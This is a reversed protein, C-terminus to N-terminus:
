HASTTQIEGKMHVGEYVLTTLLGGQSIKLMGSFVTDLNSATLRHRFKLNQSNVEILNLPFSRNFFFIESSNLLFSRLYQVRMKKIDQLIADTVDYKLSFSALFRRFPMDMKSLNRVKSHLIELVMQCMSTLSPENKQPM